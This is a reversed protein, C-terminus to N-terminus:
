VVATLKSTPILINNTIRGENVRLTKRKFSDFIERDYDIKYLGDTFQFFVILEKKLGIIKDQTLLTDPYKTVPFTRSKLEFVKSESEYDFKSYKSQLHTITEEPYLAQLKDFFEVEKQKGFAYRQKANM